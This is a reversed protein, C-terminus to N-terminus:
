YAFPFQCCPFARVYINGPLVIGFETNEINFVPHHSYTNKPIEHLRQKM